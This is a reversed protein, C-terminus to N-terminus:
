RAADDDSLLRELADTARRLEAALARQSGPDANDPPITEQGDGTPTTDPPAPPAPPAQAAMDEDSVDPAHGVLTQSAEDRSVFGLDLLAQYNTIQLQLTQADRLMEAARLEAFRFEVDAQIGQARLALAFLRELLTEALHQMSKIGAVHIEWQRNANAESVGDTIGMLLPMTKLSRVAMRELAAFLGDIGSMFSADVAGVSGTVKITDTHIYADDPQLQAYDDRIATIQARVFEEFRAPDAALAPFAAALAGLLVEVDQRPYGQQQVVRKLDHLLGLLFISTFLAPNALPRGYPSRPAPDIPLYWFTPIDLAVFEAGQYQGPVWVRGRVPDQRSRFRITAPDPTAIDVPLRGRTDLVLEACLAGREFAAFFLRNILKDPTGHLDALDDLFADLATQGKAFPRDSGPRRATAEWGPNCMRLFDWLARSTEPSLDVMLDMLDGPALKALAQSDLDLTLWREHPDGESALSPVAAFFDDPRDLSVRRGTVARPDLRPTPPPAPAPVAPKGFLRDLFSM